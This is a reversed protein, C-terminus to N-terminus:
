STIISYANQALPLGSIILIESFGLFYSSGWETDIVVIAATSQFTVTTGVSCVGREGQTKWEIIWCALSSAIIKDQKKTFLVSVSLFIAWLWVSLFHWMQSNLLVKRVRLCVKNAFLPQIIVIAPVWSYFPHQKHGSFLQLNRSRYFHLCHQYRYVTVENARSPRYTETLKLVKRVENM